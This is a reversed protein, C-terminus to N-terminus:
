KVRWRASGPPQPQWRGAHAPGRLLLDVLQPRHRPVRRGVRQRAGTPGRLAALRRQRCAPPPRIEQARADLREVPVDSLASRHETTIVRCVDGQEYRELSAARMTIACLLVSLERPGVALDARQRLHPAERSDTVCLAHAAAMGAAGGFAATEPEYIGPWWRVLHGNALGAPRPVVLRRVQGNDLPTLEVSHLHGDQAGLADTACADAPPDYSGSLQMLLAVLMGRTLDDPSPQPVGSM